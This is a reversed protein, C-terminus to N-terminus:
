KKRGPDFYWQYVEKTVPVASSHGEGGGEVLVIMAIEPNDFPAFSSFWAHTQDQSGFEATGTKGAVAVPLDNLTQATGSLITERMGERVVQIAKKLEPNNRLVIKEVETVDGDRKRIESVLHPQYVTGGNAIAAIYNVLQIPTTTIFGQGISSHYSDGVYWREGIKELKWKEDPILGSREGLLDVGTKEGLGFKNEYEKMRDMGLGQIGGYGGGVAYFFVDCSEAIAKKVDVLGHTKWDGFRFAGINIAGNPDNVTTEPTITGEALGAVAVAMKLVSGPPYEGAIARNFLPKDPNNILSAYQEQSIKRAFLNNDFSPLSVLALIEGNRPDIAVAAATKTQTKELIQTLSDYLKKQLGADVGLVLDSGAKPNVIGREKKINGRSDVEIQFAGNVGRLSKEYFKELGDKGIYDTLSYEPNDVLDKTNIKGEYGLIHSFISSDAYERIATQEIMVGSLAEKKEVIALSEDQSINEKILVPNLSKKGVLDLKAAFDAKDLSLTEALANLVAEKKKEEEPFDAPVVVADLSPVNNVLMVGYRDFIKGRPAKIVISRIKNGQAVEQYYAGRLINLYFIRGGMVFLVVLALWWFLQIRKKELPREISTAERESISFVYDEIEQGGSYEKRKFKNM